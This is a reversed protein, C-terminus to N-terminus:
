CIDFIWSRISLDDLNIERLPKDPIDAPVMARIPVPMANIYRSLFEGGKSRKLYGSGVIESV